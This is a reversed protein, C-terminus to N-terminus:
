SLKIRYTGPSNMKNMKEAVTIKKPTTGSIIGSMVLAFLLDDFVIRSMALDLNAEQICITNNSLYIRM